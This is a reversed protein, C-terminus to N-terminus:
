RTVIVQNGRLIVRQLDNFLVSGDSAREETFLSIHIIRGVEPKGSRRNLIDYIPARANVAAPDVTYQFKGDKVQLVGQDLVAGPMLVTYAVEKASTTGTFTFPKAPNFASQGPLNIKMGQVPPMAMKGYVFIFGGEEPLGPMGGTHGQWEGKLAYRYVGPVDLTWREGAAFTGFADATGEVTKQRGDPWTLSVTVKVPLLPDIQVAAAISSGAEYALGPRLGTLFFRAWTGDAGMIDESGAQVVRNDNSGAPIVFASSIYGAYLAPKGMPRIVVGGLLRYIDGAADGNSSAGIQGGFNTMTTPWYPARVGNDGVVFRSMFGPRPASGYYYQWETIYEPYLHPSYGNSTRIMLNTAGITNLRTEWKLPADPTEYTLVPEIKNAGAYEAAILLVDGSLYPYNIHALHPDGAAEAHGEFKTSGRDVAKKDADILKKGHAIVPTDPPYVVGGHRMSCVWLTGEADTYRALIHAFYEGPEDLVFPKMGQAAGFTGAATAKGSYSLTKMRGPDSDPYLFADVTVDAPVPPIFAIDRGYRSGVPYPMGQFTATAMTMRKAIWFRYTGGGEYRNGWVDSIWGTVSVTYQGYVPPKWQTFAPNKTTPGTDGAGTFPSTGLDTVAGDPSTVKVSMEGSSYNWPINWGPDITDVPFEPELTGAAKPLIVDDPIINRDSLAFHERDEEAVVGRYGNSSYKRLIAWPIRPRIADASVRAGDATFGSARIPPTYVYLADHEDALFSFPRTAFGGLNLNAQRNKAKVGWDFRLRYIGAPLDTPLTGSLEFHVAADKGAAAALPAAALQDFPSSYAGGFRRTSAGMTGGEIALGSPTVLTSMRDDLPMHIRGEGDFMREATVLVMATEPAVGADRALAALLGAPLTLDATVSVKTGPEWVTPEVRISASWEGRNVRGAATFAMVSSAPDPTYSVAAADVRKPAAAGAAVAGSAAAGAGGPSSALLCSFVMLPLLVVTARLLRIAM